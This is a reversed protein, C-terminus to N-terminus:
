KSLKVYIPTVIPGDATLKLSFQLFSFSMSRLGDRDDCNYRRLTFFVLKLKQM